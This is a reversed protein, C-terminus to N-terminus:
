GQISISLFIGYKNKLFYINCDKKELHLFIPGFEHLYQYVKKGFCQVRISVPIEYVICDADAKTVTVKWIIKYDKM